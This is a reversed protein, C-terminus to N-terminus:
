LASLMAVKEIAAPGDTAQAAAPQVTAPAQVQVPGAPDTTERAALLPYPSAPLAKTGAVQRLRSHEALVKAAYGGDDPLNAAGVYYRLGGEVSGARAICEQLVKVGVRLNTVPDFAALKGGVNEYKDTHVRTMVQMLGQAGVASQAFPNFRSEIAMVALILTPDLKVRAGTEYAEAVLLSVPEPAVSYKKSLWYAVKAQEKPLDKPNAAMARDSPEPEPEPEGMLAVQRAQLWGILQEEGAQRLDPRAVLTIAVFAVALGLLAFSNHTIELFGETVDAAFTRLGSVMKGSATM